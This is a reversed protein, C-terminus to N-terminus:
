RHVTFTLDSLDPSGFQESEGGFLDALEPIGVLNQSLSNNFGLDWPGSSPVIFEYPLTLPRHLSTIQPKTQGKMALLAKQAFLQKGPPEHDQPNQKVSLYLANISYIHPWPLPALATTKVQCAM